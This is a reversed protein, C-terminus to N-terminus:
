GTSKFVCCHQWEPKVPPFIKGDPFLSSMYDVTFYSNYSEWPKGSYDQSSFERGPEVYLKDDILLCWDSQRATEVIREIDLAANGAQQWSLM